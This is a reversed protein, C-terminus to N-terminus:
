SCKGFQKALYSAIAFSQAIKVDDVELVPLSGFPMASFTFIFDSMLSLM